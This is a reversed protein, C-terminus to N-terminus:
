LKEGENMLKCVAHAEEENPTISGEVIKMLRNDHIFYREITQDNYADRDRKMGVEFRDGFGGFVPPAGAINGMRSKGWGRPITIVKAM